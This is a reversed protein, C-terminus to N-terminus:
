SHRQNVVKDLEFIAEDFDNDKGDYPANNAKSEGLHNPVSQDRRHVRGEFDASPAGHRNGLRKFAEHGVDFHSSKGPNSQCRREDEM